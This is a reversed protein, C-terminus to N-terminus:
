AEATEVQSQKRKAASGAALMGFSLLGLASAPEPVSAPDTYDVRVAADSIRLSHGGGGGVKYEFFLKTSDLFNYTDALLTFSETTQRHEAIPSNWLLSGGSASGGDQYISIQGKRNGWGQDRWSFDFHVAEIDEHQETEFWANSADTSRRNNVDPLQYEKTLTGAEAASALSVSMAIAGVTVLLGKKLAEM